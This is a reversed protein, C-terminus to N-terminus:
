KKAVKAATWLSGPNVRSPYLSLMADYLERATSTAEALRNFDLLYQRTEAIISPDDANEPVKHGAIVTKPRLAGLRDLTAIWELRSRLDTEGLYPHIGNYVADGGVLLGISPVHLCTSQATDTHGANVVVLRHGELELEDNDLVGAVPLRDPIEGPFLRRWFNDLWAPSLQNHMADVIESTAVAKAEPFRELLSALGFFHDGHGHTVYVAKLKKGSAAVWDVLRRSQEITLFTDVLMADREGSILTASNAVWM